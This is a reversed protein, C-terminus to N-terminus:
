VQAPVVHWFGVASEAAGARLPDSCARPQALCESGPHPVLLANCGLCRRRPRQDWPSARSRRNSAKMQHAQLVAGLACIGTPTSVKPLRPPALPPCSPECSSPPRVIGDPPPAVLGGDSTVYAIRGYDGPRRGWAASSPGALQDDFRDGAVIQRTGSAGPTLPVRNITNERHTTIYALGADEDLCFDDAMTGSAVFKAPGAPDHTTPDVAGAHLAEARHLHLVPLSDPRRRV